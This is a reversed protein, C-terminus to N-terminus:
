KINEDLWKKLSERLVSLDDDLEGYTIGVIDSPVKVNKGKIFTVRDKGLIGMFLGYEFLVNDRVIDKTNEEIDVMMKDDANFIFIAGDVSKAEKILSDLTTGSLGFCNDWTETKYGELKGVIASIKYMEEKAITSSGFFIKKKNEMNTNEENRHSNLNIVNKELNEDTMNKLGKNGNKINKKLFALPDLEKETDYGEFIDEDLEYIYDNLKSEDLIHNEDCNECYFKDVMIDDCSVIVEEDTEPCVTRVKVKLVKLVRLEDFLKIADSYEVNMQNSFKILRLNCLYSKPKKNIWTRFLEFHKENSVGTNKLQM